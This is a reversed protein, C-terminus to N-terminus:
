AACREETAAYEGLAKRLGTVLTASAISQELM